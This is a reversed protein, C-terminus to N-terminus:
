GQRVTVNGEGSVASIALGAPDQPVDVRAKGDRSKATVAYGGPGVTVTIDGSGSRLELGGRTDEVTLDGNHSGGRIRTGYPVQIEYTGRCTPTGVVWDEPCTAGITLTDGSQEIREDPRDGDTYELTRRVEVDHRDAGTVRATVAASTSGVQRAGEDVIDLVVTAIEGRYTDTRPPDATVGTAVRCGTLVVAATLATILATAALALTRTDVAPM